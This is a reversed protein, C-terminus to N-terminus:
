FCPRCAWSGHATANSHICPRANSMYIYWVWTVPRLSWYPQKPLRGFGLLGACSAHPLGGGLVYVRTKTAAGVLRRAAARPISQFMPGLAASTSCFWLRYYVASVISPPPTPGGDFRHARGGSVPCQQVVAVRHDVRRSYDGERMLASPTGRSRVSVPPMRTRCERFPVGAIFWCFSCDGLELQLDQVGSWFWM